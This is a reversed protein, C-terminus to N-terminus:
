FSVGLKIIIVDADAANTMDEEENAHGVYVGIRRWLENQIAQIEAQTPTTSVAGKTAVVVQGATSGSGIVYKLPKIAGDATVYVYGEVILRVVVSAGKTEMAMGYPGDTLTTPNVQVLGNTDFSCVDGKTVGTADTKRGVAVFYGSKAIEGITGAM